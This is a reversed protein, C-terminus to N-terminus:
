YKYGWSLSFTMNQNESVFCGGELPKPMQGSVRNKFGYSYVLFLESKKWKVISGVSLIDYITRLAYSHSLIYPSNRAWRFRHSYGAGVAVMEHWLYGIGTNIFVADQLGPGPSKNSGRKNLNLDGNSLISNNAGPLASYNSWLTELRAACRTSFRYTFGGGLTQPIVNKGYHPEFGKYKNYHGCYTKKIYATGFSLAKSINWRWGISFGVGNAYDTGNNTVHGPAVSKLPNDSNEFGNRLHSLQLFDVSVGLSHSSNIKVSFIASIVQTKQSVSVPTTGSSPIPNETGTKLSGPITYAALTFSTEVGKVKLLKLCAFDANFLNKCKYTLDLKGAPFLPNNDLNNFTAKQHVLYAGVDIRDAIWVANAPNVVGAFSNNGESFTNPRGGALMGFSATSFGMLFFIVIIKKM